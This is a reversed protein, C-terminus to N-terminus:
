KSRQAVEYALALYNVGDKYRDEALAAELTPASAIRGLNTLLLDIGHGFVTNQSIEANATKMNADWFACKLAVIAEFNTLPDGYVENRAGLTLDRADDLIQARLPKPAVQPAEYDFVEADSAQPNKAHKIAQKLGKIIKRRNKRPAAIKKIKSPKAKRVSKKSKPKKSM